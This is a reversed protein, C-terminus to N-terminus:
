PLIYRHIGRRSGPTGDVTLAAGTAVLIWSGDNLNEEVEVTNVIMKKGFSGGDNIEVTDGVKVPAIAIIRGKIEEIQNRRYAIEVILDPITVPKPPELARSPSSPLRLVPRPKKQSIQM